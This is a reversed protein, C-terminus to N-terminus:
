VGKVYSPLVCDEKSLIGRCVFCRTYSGLKNGHGVAVRYDFVFCEGDWLSESETVNDLYGEIGGQLHYVKEFGSKLMYSSAKECRIGGTCFMAVKSHKAPDLTKEVFGPFETFAETNPNIANRFTGLQVEYDNRTDLVVCEPDLLLANWEAPSSVYEGKVV